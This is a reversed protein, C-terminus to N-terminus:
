LVLTKSWTKYIMSINQVKAGHLKAPRYWRKSSVHMYVYESGQFGWIEYTKDAEFICPGVHSSPSSM